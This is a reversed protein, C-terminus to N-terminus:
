ASHQKSHLWAKIQKLAEDGEDDYEAVLQSLASFVEPSLPTEPLPHGAALYAQWKDVACWYLVDVGCLRIALRAALFRLATWWGSKPQEPIMNCEKVIPVQWM